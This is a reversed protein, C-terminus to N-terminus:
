IHILSLYRIDRIELHSIYPRPNDGKVVEEVIAVRESLPNPQGQEDHPYDWEVPSHGACRIRWSDSTNIVHHDVMPHLQPPNHIQYPKLKKYRTSPDADADADADGASPLILLSSSAVLILYSIM